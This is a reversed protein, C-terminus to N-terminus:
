LQFLIIASVTNCSLARRAPHTSHDFPEYGNKYCYLPSIVTHPPPLPSIVTRTYHVERQREQRQQAQNERLARMQCVCVAPFFFRTFFGPLFVPYFFRTFTRTFFPPSLRSATRGRKELNKSLLLM